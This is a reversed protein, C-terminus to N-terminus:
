SADLKVTLGSKDYTKDSAFVTESAFSGTISVPIEKDTGLPISYKDAGFKIGTDAKDIVLEVTKLSNDKSSGNGTYFKLTVNKGALDGKTGDITYIDGSKVIGENSTIKDSGIFIDCTYATPSAAGNRYQVLVPRRHDISYKGRKLEPKDSGTKYSVAADYVPETNFIVTVDGNLKYSYGTGNTFAALKKEDTVTENKNSDSSCEIVVGSLKFGAAPEAKLCVDTGYPLSGSQVYGARNIAYRYEGGVQVSATKLTGQMGESLAVLSQRRLEREVVSLEFKGDKVLKFLVRRLPIYVTAVRNGHGDSIVKFSTEYQNDPDISDFSNDLEKKIPKVPLHNQDYFDYCDYSIREFSYEFSEAQDIKISVEIQKKPDELDGTELKLVKHGCLQSSTENDYTVGYGDIGNISVGAKGPQGDYLRLGNTVTILSKNDLDFEYFPVDFVRDETIEPLTFQLVSDKGEYVQAAGEIYPFIYEEKGKINSIQVTRGPEVWFSYKGNSAVGSDRQGNEANWSIDKLIKNEDRKYQKTSNASLTVKVKPIASVRIEEPFRDNGDIEIEFEDGSEILSKSVERGETDKYDIRYVWNKDNGSDRKFESSATGTTSFLDYHFGLRRASDLVVSKADADSSADIHSIHSYTEDDNKSKVDFGTIINNSVTTFKIVPEFSAQKVGIYIHTDVDLGVALNVTCKKKEAEYVRAQKSYFYQDGITYAYRTGNGENGSWAIPDDIEITADKACWYPLTITGGYGSVAIENVSVGTRYKDAVINGSVDYAIAYDGLRVNVKNISIVKDTGAIRNESAVHIILNGKKRCNREIEANVNFKLIGNQRFGIEKLDFVVESAWSLNEIYKKVYTSQEESYQDDNGDVAFSVKYANGSYKIIQLDDVVDALKFTVKKVGTFNIQPKVGDTTIDLYQWGGEDFKYGIKRALGFCQTNLRLAGSYSGDSAGDPELISSDNEDVLGTSEDTEYEQMEGSTVPDSVDDAELFEGEATLSLEEGNGTGAMNEDAPVSVIDEASGDAADSQDLVTEQATDDAAMVPASIPSASSVIMVASLVVALRRCWSRKIRM